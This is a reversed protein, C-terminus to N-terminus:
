AGYDSIGDRFFERAIPYLTDSVVMHGGGAVYHLAVTSVAAMGSAAVLVAEAGELDALKLELCRLTPNGYRTYIYHPVEGENFSDIQEASRFAFTTNQYIPTGVAGTVPDPAEGAHVARTSFGQTRKGDPM